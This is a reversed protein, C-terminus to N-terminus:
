EFGKLEELQNTINTAWRQNVNKYQGHSTENDYQKQIKRCEKWFITYCEQYKSFTAVGDSKLEEFRKRIKRAYLEAIDFHLQEHKLIDNNNSTTWSKNTFFQAEVTMQEYNQINDNEDVLVNTPLIEIKHSTMASGFKNPDVKGKFDTWRLKRASDWDIISQGNSGGQANIGMVFFVIFILNMLKKMKCLYYFYFFQWFM